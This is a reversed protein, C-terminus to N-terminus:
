GSKKTSDIVGGVILWTSRPQGSLDKILTLCNSMVEQYRAFPHATVYLGLLEKEWTLKDAEIAKPAPDLRVKSVLDIATGAFLSHQKTASAEQTQKAFSLLNDINKLILNRDLGLSDMAGCKALSEISKKNLDKDKVRSLFDELNKYPGGNKRERYIVEAINEGVNKIGNFGFRIHPESGDEPTVMAFNKFSANIDPPLVKVKMRKCEHIIEPVKEIDGSEALDTPYTYLPTTKTSAM